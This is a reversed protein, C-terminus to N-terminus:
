ALEATDGQAPVLAPWGLEEEIRHRLADAAAPEGHIVFSRRPPARFGKLWAMIEEADAHASLMDLHRVEARIPVYAGHIKVAEAGALLAAGRTGGAQFGTLLITNRRDPGFAKLHHLVRGGTAMGAASIIVKPVPNDLAKSEEADRVYRAVAFARKAEAHTLRHADPHATFIDSAEQAMPSDLFVPIDPIRRAAKLCSLHWLLSQTRGVAFAPVVVTGGRAATTRIVEALAEEPDDPPHRRDGYTSEVLLWDAREIRAPDPMLPDRPRGLDGSFLISRGDPLRIEAIAAGLIHGAPHFRLMCGGPLPVAEGMRVPRLRPLCAEADKRTYLPLAPHHKSFGHRNAFEADREQLAGSDPLLVGCLDRTPPTCLIPGRFGQRVLLPLAGSHDLHAHTLVVAQISSPALPFPAWNKLRLQKFGQFLGCEVLIRAGGARMLFRSGTVTGVGGWFSLRAAGSM